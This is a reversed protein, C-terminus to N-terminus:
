GSHLETVTASCHDLIRINRKIKHREDQKSVNGQGGILMRVLSLSCEPRQVVSSEGVGVYFVARVYETRKTRVPEPRIRGSDDTFSDSVAAQSRCLRLHPLCRLAAGRCLLHRCTRSQRLWALGLGSGLLWM